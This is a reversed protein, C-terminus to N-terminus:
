YCNFLIYALSIGMFAFGGANLYYIYKDMYTIIEKQKDVVSKLLKNEHLLKYYDEEEINNDEESYHMVEKKLPKWYPLDVIHYKTDDDNNNLLEKKDEADDKSKYVGSFYIKHDKVKYLLFVM